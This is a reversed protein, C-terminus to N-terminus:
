IPLQPQTFEIKHPKIRGMKIEHELEKRAKDEKDNNSFISFDGQRYGSMFNLYRNFLQMYYGHPLQEFDNKLERAISPYMHCLDVNTIQRNIQQQEPQKQVKKKVSFMEDLDDETAGELRLTDKVLEIIQTGGLRKYLNQPALLKKLKHKKIVQHWKLNIYNLKLADAVLQVYYGALTLATSGSEKVAQELDFKDKMFREHLILQKNFLEIDKQAIKYVGTM